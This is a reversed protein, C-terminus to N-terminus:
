LCMLDIGRTVLEEEQLLEKQKQMKREINAIQRQLALVPSLTINVASCVEIDPDPASDPEDDSGQIM